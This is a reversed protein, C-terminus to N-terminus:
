CTNLCWLNFNMSATQLWSKQPSVYMKGLSIFYNSFGIQYIVFHKPSYVLSGSVATNIALLIWEIEPKQSAHAIKGLCVDFTRCSYFFKCALKSHICFLMDLLYPHIAKSKKVNQWQESQKLFTGFSCVLGKFEFTTWVFSFTVRSM